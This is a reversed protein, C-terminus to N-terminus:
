VVPHSRPSRHCAYSPRAPTPLTSVPAHDAQERAQLVELAEDLLAPISKGTARSLTALIGQQALMLEFPTPEM